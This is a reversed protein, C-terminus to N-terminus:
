KPFKPDSKVEQMQLTHRKSHASLLLMGQYCDITGFAPHDMYHNRLDDKTQKVYDLTKARADKYATLAAAPNGLTGKPQLMEPAQFKQSRDPTKEILEEDTVKIQSRKSSDAPGQLSGQVWSLIGAEALTIHELCELVTWRGEAPRFNFQEDSLGEVTQLLLDRTSEMQSILKTRDADSIPDPAIPRFSLILLAALFFSLKKM